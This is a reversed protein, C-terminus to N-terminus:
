TPHPQSPAPLPGTPSPAAGPRSGGGAVPDAAWRRVTAVDRHLQARLADPGAFPYQGRLWRAFSLTLSQGYIDRDLGLLHAEVTLVRGGFTPKEGISVAAPWREGAASGWAAYVGDAPLTFGQWAAPELNATPVGLTRGRQEGRVVPATLTFPRGLAAAADAVRGRGVLWRVLSSSVPVETQDGMRARVRPVTVAEFDHEEGLRCLLEMDGARGRGFRFDPGEVVAVPHHRDVLGEVFAVASRALLAVDPTVVEVEDAGADQLVAVRTDLSALQPPVSGPRLVAVPPPDFTIAVVRGPAARTPESARDAIQRCAAVIALHGRHPGDFNGLTLVTPPGSRRGGTAPAEGATM